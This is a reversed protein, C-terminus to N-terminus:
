SLIELHDFIEKRLDYITQQGIWQTLIAQAYQILSQLIVSGLLMAIIPILGSFDNKVIHKDIAIMMLYPRLPGLSSVAITIIVAGFVQLKYPKLYKVIRRMLKADYAKGLIEEEEAAMFDSFLM